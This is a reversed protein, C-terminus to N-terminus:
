SVARLRLLLKRFEEPNGAATCLEQLFSRLELLREPPPISYPREDSCNLVCMYLLSRAIKSKHYDFAVQESDRQMMEKTSIRTSKLTERLRSPPRIIKTGDGTCGQVCATCLLM